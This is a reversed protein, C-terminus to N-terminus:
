KHLVLIRLILATSKGSGAGAIVNTSVASSLIVSWQADTPHAGLRELCARAKAQRDERELQQLTLSAPLFVHQPQEVDNIFTDSFPM